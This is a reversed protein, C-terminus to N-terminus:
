LKEVSLLEFPHLVEVEDRLQWWCEMHPTVVVSGQPLWSSHSQALAAGQTPDWLREFGRGGCCGRLPMPWLKLGEVKQLLERYGDRGGGCLPQYYVEKKSSVLRWLEREDLRKQIALSLEGLSWAPAAQQVRNACSPAEFLLHDPTWNLFQEKCQEKLGCARKQLHPDSAFRHEALRDFVAGCCPQSPPRVLEVKLENLLRQTAQILDPRLLEMVCSFAVSWQEKQPPPQTVAGRKEGRFLRRLSSSLWRRKWPSSLRALVSLTTHHSSCESQKMQQAAESRIQQVGERVLSFPLSEPCVRECERCGLCHDFTELVEGNPKVRKSLLEKALFIRGRPSQWEDGGSGYTACVSQCQGCQTCRDLIGEFSNGGREM